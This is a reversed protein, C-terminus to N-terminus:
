NAEVWKRLQRGRNAVILVRTGSPYKGYPKVKFKQGDCYKRLQGAISSGAGRNDSPDVLAINANRGGQESFAMPWEDMDDTQGDKDSDWGKSIVKHWADRKQDTGSREITLTEPQGSDIAAQIHLATEPYKARNLLVARPSGQQQCDKQKASSPKGQDKDSTSKSPKPASSSARGVSQRDATPVNPDIGTSCASLLLASSVLSLPLLFKLRAFRM